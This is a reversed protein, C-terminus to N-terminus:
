PRLHITLSPTKIKHSVNLLENLRPVGSTAKVAAATGSVHFSNLTLQTSPEGLSQAAIIGVMEGAPAVADNFYRRIESLIWDFVDKQMRHGFIMPKPSLYVRTLIKFFDTGQEPTTVYLDRHLTEIADLIYNPTLNSPLHHLGAAEM